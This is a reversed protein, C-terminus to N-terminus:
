AISLMYCYPQIMRNYNDLHNSVCLPHDLLQRICEHHQRIHQNLCIYRSNSHQRILSVMQQAFRQLMNLCHQNMRIYISNQISTWMLNPNGLMKQIALWIIEVRFSKHQHGFWVTGHCKRYGWKQRLNHQYRHIYHFQDLMLVHTCHVHSMCSYKQCSCNNICDQNYRRDYHHHGRLYRHFPRSALLQKPPGKFFDNSYFANEWWNWLHRKFFSNAANHTEITKLLSLKITLIIM